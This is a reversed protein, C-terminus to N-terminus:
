CHYNLYRQLAKAYHTGKDKLKGKAGRVKSCSLEGLRKKLIGPKVPKHIDEANEEGTLYLNKRKNSNKKKNKRKRKVSGKRTQVKGTPTYNRADGPGYWDSSSIEGAGPNFGSDGGGLSAGDTIDEKLLKLFLREFICTSEM